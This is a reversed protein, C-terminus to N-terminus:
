KKYTHANEIEHMIFKQINQLFYNQMDYAKTINRELGINKLYKEWKATMEPSKLVRVSKIFECLKAGKDTVHINKNKIKIYNKNKITEIISARTAETGIGEVEKLIDSDENDLEKGATKMAQILSGETFYKPPKTEKDKIKLNVSVNMGIKLNMPLLQTDKNDSIESNFLNKWGLNIIKQGKSIFKLNQYDTEVITEEYEYKPYFMAITTKAVLKYINQELASLKNFQQETPITKTLIIAHHEQVKKNNVYRKDASTNLVDENVNLFKIYNKINKSLYKFEEETIYTCDTRPYTLFKSEYLKQVAKLTDSASANFQSNAKTQLSSLSFLKPSSIQKQKSQIDIIEANVKNKNINSLFKDLEEQNFFQKKPSLTGKFENSLTSIQAEVENYKQPKFYKIENNREFIMNLTPTQVRGISLINDKSLNQNSAINLSYLPSLNMGVLWDAQARTQAEIFMSYTDKSDKLNKFGTRVSDAELSNIWLRKINKKSCGAMNIILRAIAEGERDIDTAIVIEDASKLLKKVINFQKIKDKDVRYEFKEPFIPLNNLDWIKWEDKYEAPQKLTVLHGFGYTIFCQDFLDDVIEFYGNKKFSKQMADAYAKAQSPKEALIVTKM